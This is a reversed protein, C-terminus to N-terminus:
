SGFIPPTAAVSITVTGASTKVWPVGLGPRVSFPVPIEGPCSSRQAQSVLSM